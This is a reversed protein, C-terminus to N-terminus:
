PRGERGTVCRGEAGLPDSGDGEGNERRRRKERRSLSRNRGAVGDHLQLVGEARRRAPRRARRPAQFTESM